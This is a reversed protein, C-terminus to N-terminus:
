DFFAPNVKLGAPPPEAYKFIYERQSETLHGFDLDVKSRILEDSCSLGKIKRARVWARIKTAALATAVVAPYTM